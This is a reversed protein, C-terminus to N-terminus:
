HHITHSIQSPHHTLNPQELQAALHSPSSLAPPSAVAAPLRTVLLHRCLSRTLSNPLFCFAKSGLSSFYLQTPFVLAWTISAGHECSYLQVDPFFLTNIIVDTYMQSRRFLVIEWYPVPHSMAGLSDREWWTRIDLYLKNVGTMFSELCIGTRSSAFCHGSFLFDATHPTCLLQRFCSNDSYHVLERWTM